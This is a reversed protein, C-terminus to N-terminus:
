LLAGGGSAKHAAYDAAAAKQRQQRRAEALGIDIWLRVQQTINRHNAAAIEKIEAKQEVPLNMVLPEYNKTPM